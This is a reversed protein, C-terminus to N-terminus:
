FPKPILRLCRASKPFSRTLRYLALVFQHAKQWVVWEEFKKAPEKM